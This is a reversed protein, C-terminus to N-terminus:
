IYHYIIVQSAFFDEGEYHGTMNLSSQDKIDSFSGKQKDIDSDGNIGSNKINWVEFSTEESFYVTILTESSAAYSVAENESPYFTKNIVVSNDGISEITGDLESDSQLQTNDKQPTDPQLQAPNEEPQTNNSQQVSNENNNQQNNDNETSNDSQDNASIEEGNTQSSDNETKNVDFADDLTIVEVEPVDLDADTSGCGATMLLLLGTCLFTTIKKHRM